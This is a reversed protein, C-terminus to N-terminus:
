AEIKSLIFFYEIFTMKLFYLYYFQIFHLVVFSSRPPFTQSLSLDDFM